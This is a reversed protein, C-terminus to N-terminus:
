QEEHNIVVERDTSAVIKRGAISRGNVADIVTNPGEGEFVIVAMASGNTKDAKIEVREVAGHGDVLRRVDNEEAKFPLNGVYIRKPM